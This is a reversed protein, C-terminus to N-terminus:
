PLRVSLRINSVQGQSYIFRGINAPLSAALSRSGSMLMRTDLAPLQVLLDFAKAFPTEQRSGQGARCRVADFGFAGWAPDDAPARKSLAPVAGCLLVTIILLRPFLRLAFIWM